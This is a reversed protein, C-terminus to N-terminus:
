DCEGKHTHTIKHECQSRALSSRFLSLPFFSLFIIARARALHFVAASASLPFRFLLVFSFLTVIPSGFCAVGESAALCNGASQHHQHSRAISIFLTAFSSPFFRCDLRKIVTSFTALFVIKWEAILNACPASTRASLDEIQACYLKSLPNQQSPFLPFYFVNVKHSGPM